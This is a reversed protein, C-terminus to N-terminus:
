SHDCTARNTMHSRDDNAILAPTEPELEEEKWAIERWPKPSGPDIGKAALIKRKTKNQKRRRMKTRKQKKM